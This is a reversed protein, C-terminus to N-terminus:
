SPPPALGAELDVIPPSNVFQQEQALLEDIPGKLIKVWECDPAVVDKPDALVRDFGSGCVITDRYAPKHWVFFADKGAGGSINDHSFERSEGDIIEDNGGGAVVNDAGQGALVADNGPGGVLIKDGQASQDEPGGAIVWDKGEGGVLNDRGKLGFLDDNGGRALLNDAKNTGMLSDPGDTGIRTVALALGSAALLTLTMTALLVITRRMPLSAKRLPAPHSTILSSECRGKILLM